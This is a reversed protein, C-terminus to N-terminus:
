KSPKISDTDVWPIGVFGSHVPIDLATGLTTSDFLEENTKFRYPKHLPAMWPDVSIYYTFWSRRGCKYDRQMYTNITMAREPALCQAYSLKHTTSHSRRGGSKCTLTCDQQVIRRTYTQPDQVDFSINVERLVFFATAVIGIIGFVVFDVIVLAAWSSRGVLFMMIGLWACLGVIALAGSKAIWPTHALLETTQLMAPIAGFVALTFFAAHAAMMMMAGHRPAILRDDSTHQYDINKQEVFAAIKELNSIINEKYLRDYNEKDRTPTRVWMRTGYARLSKVGVRLFLDHIAASFTKDQMLQWFHEPADSVFFLEDDLRAHGTQLETALSLHKLFRHYWRESSISFYVVQNLELGLEAHLRRRHKDKYYIKELIEKGNLDARRKLFLGGLKFRRYLMAVTFLVLYLILTM